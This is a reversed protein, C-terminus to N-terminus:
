HIVSLLFHGGVIKEEGIINVIYLGNPLNAVPLLIYQDTFLGSYVIRGSFDIMEIRREQVNEFSILCTESAPNPQYRFNLANNETIGIQLLCDYRPKTLSKYCTDGDETIATIEITIPSNENNNFQHDVSIGTSTEGDGFHWIPTLITMDGVEFIANFETTNGQELSAFDIFVQECPDVQSKPKCFSKICFEGNSKLSNVTLCITDGLENNPLPSPNQVNLTQGNGLSWTYSNAAGLPVQSNNEFELTENPGPNLEFDLDLAECCSTPTLSAPDKILECYVDKCEAGALDTGKVTICVMFEGNQDYNHLYTQPVASTVLPSGDGFDMKSETITGNPFTSNDTFSYQGTTPDKLVTFSAQLADCDDGCIDCDTATCEAGFKTGTVTLCVVYADQELYTHPLPNFLPSTNGDGYDWVSSTIAGGPFVTNNTVGLPNNGDCTFKVQLGGCPSTIEITVCVLKTCYIGQKYGKVKLCVIYTGPEQYTHIPDSAGSFETDDFDYTYQIITGGIFSSTNIFSVTAGNIVYNFSAILGDCDSVLVTDCFTDSCPEGQSNTGQVTLCVNYQGSTLYQHSIDSGTSTGGDGFNWSYSNITGNSITANQSFTVANNLVTFNFGADITCPTSNGITITNCITKTCTQQTQAILYTFTACVNYTGNNSYTHPYFGYPDGSQSQGDGFDWTVNQIPGLNFSPSASCSVGDFTAFVNTNAVFQDCPLAACTTTQCFQKTCPTGNVDYTVTVCVNYTGPATYSNYPNYTSSSQGDGFNWSVSTVNYNTNAQLFFAVGNPLSPYPACTFTPSGAFECPDQQGQYFFTTCTNGICALDPLIVTYYACLSYTRTLTLQFSLTSNSGIPNGDLQWSIGTVSEGNPTIINASLLGNLSVTYSIQVGCDQSFAVNSFISSFSFFLIIAIRSRQFRLIFNEM